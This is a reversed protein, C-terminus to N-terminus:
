ALLARMADSMAGDRASRGFNTLLRRDAGHALLLTATELHDRPSAIHLPSFGGICVANVNAGAALLTRAIEVHGEQSAVYLPTAGNFTSADVIAGAALLARAVEIRGDYSAIFLPTAGNNNAVNVSAGAALLARAVEAHGEESSCGLATRGNVDRADRPSGRALLWRVRAIDGHWTAYMLVARKQPGHHVHSMASWFREEAATARCLSVTRRADFAFKCGGCEALAFLADIFVCADNALFGAARRRAARTSSAM